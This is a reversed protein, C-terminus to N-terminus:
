GDRATRSAPPTRPAMAAWLSRAHGRRAAAGGRAAIMHTFAGLAIGLREVVAAGAGRHKTAYRVRSQVAVHLLSARPLSAGGMHTVVTEPEYHVEYGAQQLRLCLDTDECYLFFGEDFGGIEEFAERRVLICAGSVWEQTGAREYWHSDRIMEDTWRAKPFIRHLFLAQGYTSRLRPFRRLSHHLEGDDGVIKPAAAGIGPDSELEGVLRRLSAEDISADPNLFLIFDAHGLRAGTNCGHSFGANYSLPVVTVPLDSVAAISGDFSANDVVVVHIEDLAALGEACTRLQDESNYSVVVVDVPTSM